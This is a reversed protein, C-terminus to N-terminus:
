LGVSCEFRVVRRLEQALASCIRKYQEARAILKRVDRDDGGLCWSLARLVTPRSLVDYSLRQAVGANKCHYAALTAAEANKTDVFTQVLIRQKDTLDLFRDEFPPSPGFPPLYVDRRIEFKRGGGEGGDCINYGVDPHQAKLVHIFHKELEDMESKSEIGSVLPWISWTERPHKRMARYLHSRGESRGEQRADSFKTQLYKQLNNGKHQGIYLKGSESCVIVYVFM